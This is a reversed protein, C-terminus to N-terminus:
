GDERAVLERAARLRRALGPMPGRRALAEAAERHSSGGGELEVLDTLIAAEAWRWVDPLRRSRDLADLLIAIAEAPRDGIAERALGRLALAEWCPDGVSEALILATGLQERGEVRRGGAIAAEGALVMPLPQLAIWGGQITEAIAAAAYSSAEADRDTELMIRALNSLTYALWRREGCSEFREAAKRLTAEAVAHEDLDIQCCGLYALVSGELRADGARRAHGLARNLAAQAAGYEGDIFAIFGAEREIEALLGIDGAGVALRLARDLLGIAERDRGRLSHTLITALLLLAQAELREDGSDGADTAARRAAQISGEYDGADFRGRAATLTARAAVGHDVLPNSRRAGLREFPRRLGIPSDSGLHRRYRTETRQAHAEAAAPDGALLHLEVVLEHAADDYENLRLAHHALALAGAPDSAARLTAAWRFAARTASECRARQLALWDEFLPADAIEVGELLEGGAVQDVSSAAVTAALIEEADVSLGGTRHLVLRGGEDAISASRGLSRRVGVLTWRLAGLPDDANPWLLEAMERRSVPRAELLLWALLAWGKRGPPRPSAPEGTLRPPGLLEVRLSTESSASM